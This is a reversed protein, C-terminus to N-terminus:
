DCTLIPVNVVIQHNPTFNVTGQKIADVIHNNVKGLIVTTKGQYAQDIMILMESVTNDIPQAYIYILNQFNAGSLILNEKPLQKSIEEVKSGYYVTQGNGVQHDKYTIMGNEMLIYGVWGLGADSKNGSVIGSLIPMANIEDFAEKFTLANASVVMLFMLAFISFLKKM